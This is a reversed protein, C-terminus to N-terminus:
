ETAAEPGTVWAAPRKASLAAIGESATGSRLATAFALSAFDLTSDLAETRRKQLIM